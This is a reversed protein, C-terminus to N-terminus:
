ALFEAATRLQMGRAAMDRLFQDAMAPFDVLVNSDADRIAPVPSMCDTLLVFKKLHEEGINDAVQEVTAKVCHSSAEGAVAILDADQLVKLFNGNLQTTPDQAMPVEAMLAGYHETLVNTGKTVYDVNRVRAMSWRELAAALDSQVNHGPTGILCHPPWIMLAYQGAAELAEAYDIAYQRVDPIGQARLVRPTWTGDKIAEASIITMPAPQNGDQDRWFAPHAIDTVHHTDLTVHISRLKPGIRDILTATRQMDATGGPVGLAGGEMFDNQPDIILLHVKM